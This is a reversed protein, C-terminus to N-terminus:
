GPSGAYTVEGSSNVETVTFIAPRHGAIAVVCAFSEGALAPVTAPCYATGHLHRKAAITDQIAAQIQKINTLNQEGSTTPPPLAAGCAGLGCALALAVAAHTARRAGRAARRAPSRAAPIRGSRRRHREGLRRAGPM